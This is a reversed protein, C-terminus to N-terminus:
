YRRQMMRRGAARSFTFFHDADGGHRGHHVYGHEVRGQDKGRELVMDALSGLLYQAHKVLDKELDHV